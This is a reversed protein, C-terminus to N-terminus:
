GHRDTYDTTLFTKTEEGETAETNGGHDRHRFDPGDGKAECEKRREGVGRLGGRLFHQGREHFFIAQLTVVGLGLLAVAFELAELKREGVFRRQDRGFIDDILERQPFHRRALRLRLRGVVLPERHDAHQALADGPRAALDRAGGRARHHPPQRVSFVLVRERREETAAHVRETERRIERLLFRALVDVGNSLREDRRAKEQILIELGGIAEDLRAEAPRLYGRLGPVEITVEDLVLLQRSRM